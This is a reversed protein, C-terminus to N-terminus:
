LARLWALARTYGKSVTNSINTAGDMMYDAVASNSFKAGIIAYGQLVRGNEGMMNARHLESLPTADWHLVARGLQFYTNATGEAWKSFTFSKTNEDTAGIARGVVKIGFDSVGFAPMAYSGLEAEASLTTATVRGRQSVGKTKDWGNSSAILGGVVFLSQELGSHKLLKETGIITRGLASKSLMKEGEMALKGSIGAGAHEALRYYDLLVTTERQLAAEAEQLPTKLFAQMSGAAKNGAAAVIEAARYDAKLRMIDQAIQKVQEGYLTVGNLGKGYKHAQGAVKAAVSVSEEAREIADKAYEAGKRVLERGEATSFARQILLGTHHVSHWVAMEPGAFRHLAAGSDQMSPLNSVFGHRSSVVNPAQNGTM